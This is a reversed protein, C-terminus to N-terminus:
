TQGRFYWRYAEETLRYVPKGTERLHILQEKLSERMCVDLDTYFLKRLRKVGEYTRGEEVLDALYVLKELETMGARGSTHFRIAGLIEGDSIGFLHEALFAGVYQHAVAPPVDGPLTFGALLPSDPPVSKGCDHLMSALLAKEEPVALSRARECAALAVRFSHERREEKELLLAKEQEPYRYLGREGIYRLVEPDLEKPEKGFALAVRVATSSVPAGTFPVERFAHGFRASFRSRLAGDPGQERGCVALTVNKLIDDPEKWTFFDEAMDRGVLFFREASPERERFRRCTLYSYSTGGAAIEEDSVEAEPVGRFALRCMELREEAGARAGAKHPASFSPMVIVKTLGLAGVAARVLAVHERHVPDFSGGFIAIKM